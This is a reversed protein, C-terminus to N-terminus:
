FFEVYEGKTQEAGKREWNLFTQYGIRAAACADTRYAGSRLAELLNNM